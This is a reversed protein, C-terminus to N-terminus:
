VGIGGVDADVFAPTHGCLGFYKGDPIYSTGTYNNPLYNSNTGNLTKNCDSNATCSDILCTQIKNSVYSPLKSENNSPKINLEQAIRLANATLNNKALNVSIEPFVACNHLTELDGFTTSNIQCAATCNLTGDSQKCAHPFLAITTNQYPYGRDLANQLGLTTSGNELTISNSAEDITALDLLPPPKLAFCSRQFLLFTWAVWMNLM